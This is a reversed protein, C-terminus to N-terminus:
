QLVVNVSITKQNRKQPEPYEIILLTIEEQENNDGGDHKVTVSNRPRPFDIIETTKLHAGKQTPLNVWWAQADGHHESEFVPDVRKGYSRGLDDVWVPGLPSKKAKKWKVVDSFSPKSQYKRSM